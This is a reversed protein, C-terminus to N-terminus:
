VTEEPPKDEGAAEPPAQGPEAAHAEEAPAPPIEGEGHVPVVWVHITATVDEAFRLPVEHKDLQRIPEDLAVNDPEIFLGEEALVAVIQAPGVSGYLHGEPNARAALTIEKGDVLAARAEIEARQRALEELYRRKELEVQRVNAASPRFALGQPLLYNRAYGPRVDVLDGIRGLHTVNKRLLVKM